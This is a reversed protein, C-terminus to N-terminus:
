FRVQFDVFQEDMDVPEENVSKVKSYSPGQWLWAELQDIRHSDGDALCFVNGDPLNRVYGKLSLERSKNLTHYRFGVGQVQGSIKFAKRSM